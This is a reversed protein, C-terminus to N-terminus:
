PPKIVGGPLLQCAAPGSHSVLGIQSKAAMGYAQLLFLLYKQLMHSSEQTPSTGLFSLLPFELFPSAHAPTPAYTQHLNLTYIM